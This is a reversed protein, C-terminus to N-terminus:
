HWLNHFFSFREKSLKISKLFLLVLFKFSVYSLVGSNSCRGKDKMKLKVLNLLHWFEIKDSAVLNAPFAAVFREFVRTWVSIQGRPSNRKDHNWCFQLPKKRQYTLIDIRSFIPTSMLMCISISYAWKDQALQFSPAWIM